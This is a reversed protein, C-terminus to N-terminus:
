GIQERGFASRRRLGAACLGVVWIWAGHHSLVGCRTNSAPQPPRVDIPPGPLLRTGIDLETQHAGIPADNATSVIFRATTDDLRTASETVVGPGLDLRLDEPLDVSTRVVLTERTGLILRGPEISRMRPRSADSRVEFADQAIVTLDPWRLEISRTGPTADSSVQVRIRATDADIVDVAEVLFGAGLSVTFDDQSLRLYRGTLEVVLTDGPWAAAPSVRLITPPYAEVSTPVSPDGDLTGRDTAFSAVVTFIDRPGSVPVTASETLSTGVPEQNRYVTYGTIPWISEPATWSLPVTTDLWRGEPGTLATPAPLYVRFSPGTAVSVNEAGDTAEVWWVFDTGPDAGPLNGSYRGDGVPVMPENSREAGGAYWVLEVRAVSSNDEVVAEVPFPGDLDQTDEPFQTIFVSPPVPDGDVVSVTGVYWGDRAVSADALFRFRVQHLSELEDLPLYLTEWGDSQGEFLSSGVLPVATQWGGDMLQEVLGFDSGDPELDYWHEVVLIPQTLASLDVDPFTLRDDANNMHIDDLRTGWGYTGTPGGDPGSEIPGWEWQGPDGSATLGGDDTQLDTSWVTVPAQAHASSLWIGVCWLPIARVPCRGGARCNPSRPMM